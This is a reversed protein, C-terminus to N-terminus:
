TREGNFHALHELAGKGSSIAEFAIFAEALQASRLLKEITLPFRSSQLCVANAWDAVTSGLGTYDEHSECVPLPLYLTKQSTPLFCRYAANVLRELHMTLSRDKGKLEFMYMGVKGTDIWSKAGDAVFYDHGETDTLLIDIFEVTPDKALAADITTLNVVLQPVTNDTSDNIAAIEVGFPHQHFMTTGTRNSVAAVHASIQISTRATSFAPILKERLFDIHSVIPDFAFLKGSRPVRRNVLPQLNVHCDGCAGCLNGLSRLEVRDAAPLHSFREEVFDRLLALHLSPSWGGRGGIAEILAGAVYGKNVGVDVIVWDHKDAMEEALLSALYYENPCRSGSFCRKGCPWRCEFTANRGTESTNTTRNAFFTADLAKLDFARQAFSNQGQRLPVRRRARLKAPVVDLGRDSRGSRSAPEGSSTTNLLLPVLLLCLGVICGLLPLYQSLVSPYGKLTRHRM